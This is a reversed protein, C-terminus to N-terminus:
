GGLRLTKKVVKKLVPSDMVQRAIWMRKIRNVLQGGIEYERSTISNPSHLPSSGNSGALLLERCRAELNEIYSRQSAIFRVHDEWAKGLTRVEAVLKDREQVLAAVYGQSPVAVQQAPHNWAHGPGNANQLHFLEAGWLRYLDPHRQALLDYLYLLQMQNGSQYMSGSRVRYRVLPLPLSVGVGGQELLAVWGEYDEFNYEFEPNNGGQQLFASRRTVVLPVLMNHGLLYPFEANWTPWVASAEGFYQVWSYVLAVNRYQRLVAIAQAFFSSEVIDDADVFALFEGRATRAGTNRAVALGQNDTHVVRVNPLHRAEITRLISLSKEESTGDNVIIV